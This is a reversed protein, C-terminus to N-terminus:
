REYIKKAIWQNQQKALEMKYAKINLMQPLTLMQLNHQGSM